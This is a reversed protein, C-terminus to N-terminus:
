YPIYCFRKNMCCFKTDTASNHKRAFCQWFYQYSSRNNWPLFRNKFISTKQLLSTKSLNKYITSQMNTVEQCIFVFMSHMKIRHTSQIRGGRYFLNKSHQQITIKIENLSHLSFFFLMQTDLYCFDNLDSTIESSWIAWSRTCCLSWTSNPGM